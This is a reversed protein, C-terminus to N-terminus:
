VRGKTGNNPRGMKVNAKHIAYDHLIQGIRESRREGMYPLVREMLEIAIPGQATWTYVTKGTVTPRRNINFRGGFELLREVVDRDCMSCRIIPSMGRAAPGSSGFSGEGELLGALYQINM